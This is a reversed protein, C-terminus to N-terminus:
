LRVGMVSSWSYQYSSLGEPRTFSGSYEVEEGEEVFRHDGAFVTIAPLETVTAIFTDSGEFVGAEGQGTM